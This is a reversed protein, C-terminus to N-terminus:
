HVKPVSATPRKAASLAQKKASAHIQQGGLENTYDSNAQKEKM